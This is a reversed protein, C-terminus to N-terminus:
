RSTRRRRKAVASGVMWFMAFLALGCVSWGAIQVWESASFVGVGMGLVMPIILGKGIFYLKGEPAAWSAIAGLIGTVLAMLCMACLMTYERDQM